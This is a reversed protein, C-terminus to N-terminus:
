KWARYRFGSVKWLKGILQSKDSEKAGCARVKERPLRLATPPLSHCGPPSDSGSVPHEASCLTSRLAPRIHFEPPLSRHPIPM